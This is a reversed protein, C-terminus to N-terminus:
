EELEAVTPQWSADAERGGGGGGGGGPPQQQEGQKGRPAKVAGDAKEPNVGARGNKALFLDSNKRQAFHCSEAEVKRLDQPAAIEKETGVPRVAAGARSAKEKVNAAGQNSLRSPHYGQKLTNSRAGFSTKISPRSNIDRFRAPSSARQQKKNHSHQRNEAAGSAPNM